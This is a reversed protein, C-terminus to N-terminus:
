LFFTYRNNMTQSIFMAWKDPSDLEKQDIDNQGNSTLGKSIGVELTIEQKELM